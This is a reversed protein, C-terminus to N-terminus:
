YSITEFFSRSTRLISTPNAAKRTKNKLSEKLVNVLSKRLFPYVSNNDLKFPVFKTAKHKKRQLHDTMGFNLCRLPDGTAMEAIAVDDALPSGVPPIPTGFLRNVVTDLGPVSAGLSHNSVTSSKNTFSPSHVQQRQSQTVLEGVV